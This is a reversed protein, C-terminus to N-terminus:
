EYLSPRWSHLQKLCNFHKAVAFQSVLQLRSQMAMDKTTIQYSISGFRQQAHGIGLGTRKGTDGADNFRRSRSSGAFTAKTYYRREVARPGPSGFSGIQARLRRTERRLVYCQIRDQRQRKRENENTLFAINYTNTTAPEAIKPMMVATATRPHYPTTEKL